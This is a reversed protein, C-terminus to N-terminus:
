SWASASIPQAVGAGDVVQGCSPVFSVPTVGGCPQGCRHVVARHIEAVCPSTSSGPHRGARHPVQGRHRGGLVCARGRARGVDPAPGAAAPLARHGRCQRARHPFRRPAGAVLHRGRRLRPGRQHGPHHLDGRGVPQPASQARDHRRLPRLDRGLGRRRAHGLGPGYRRLPGPHHPQRRLPPRGSPRRHRQDPVVRPVPRAGTIARPLHWPHLARVHQVRHAAAVAACAPVDRHRVAVAGDVGRHPHVRLGRDDRPLGVPRPLRRRVARHALVDRRAPWRHRPWRPRHSDTAGDPGGGPRLRRVPNRCPGSAPVRSLGTSRLAPM